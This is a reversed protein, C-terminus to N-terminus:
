YCHRLAVIHLIQYVMTRYLPQAAHFALSNKIKAMTNMRHVDEHKSQKRSKKILNTLTSSFHSTPDLLEGTYKYKTTSYKLKGDEFIELQNRGILM